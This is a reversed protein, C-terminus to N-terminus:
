EHNKLQRSAYAIVKGRQTLVCCLGNISCYVEFDDNGDPLTLVPASSLKQKLIQFANEQKPGWNFKANKLTLATLPTAIKSFDHIFRRYYGALGLFRRIETPSKPTGV